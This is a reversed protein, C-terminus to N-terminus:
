DHDAQLTLTVVELDDVQTRVVYNAGVYMVGIAPRTKLQDAITIGIRGNRRDRVPTGARLKEIM